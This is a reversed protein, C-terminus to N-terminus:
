DHKLNEIEAQYDYQLDEELKSLAKDIKNIQQQYMNALVASKDMPIANVKMQQCFHIRLALETAPQGSYKIQKSVLRGIRRISKKIYYVNLNSLASFQEETERKADLIYAQEDHAEFLLYTLLEKNDKKFKALRLCLEQVQEPVLTALEKKIEHVTATKMSLHVIDALYTTSFEKAMLSSSCIVVLHRPM